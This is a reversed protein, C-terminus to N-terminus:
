GRKKTTILSSLDLTIGDDDLDFHLVETVDPIFKMDWAVKMGLTLRTIKEKSGSLAYGNDMNGKIFRLLTPDFKSRMPM